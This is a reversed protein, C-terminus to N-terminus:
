KRTVAAAWMLVIGALIIRCDGCQQVHVVTEHM